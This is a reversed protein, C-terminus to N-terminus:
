WRMGVEIVELMLGFVQQLFMNGAIACRGLADPFKMRTESTGRVGHNEGRREFEAVGLEDDRAFSAELAPGSEFPMDFLRSLGILEIQRMMFSDFVRRKPAGYIKYICPVDRSQTAIQGLMRFQHM